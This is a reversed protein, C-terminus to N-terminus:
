AAVDLEYVATGALLLDGVPRRTRPATERAALHAPLEAGPDARGVAIIVVPTLGDDLGFAARIAASGFGGIQHAALGHV